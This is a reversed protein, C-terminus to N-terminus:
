LNKLKQTDEILNVKSDRDISLEPQALASDNVPAAPNQTKADEKNQVNQRQFNIPSLQWLSSHRRQPNYWSEIGLFLNGLM